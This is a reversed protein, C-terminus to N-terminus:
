IKFESQVDVPRGQAISRRLAAEFQLEELGATGPIPPPAGKEISELYAALSKEFSSAYQAWRSYNGILTHAERYRRSNDYVELPGDLDSFHLCGNEFNFHMEYLSFDFKGGGSFM